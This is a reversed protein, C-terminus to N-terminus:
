MCIKDFIDPYVYSILLINRSYSCLPYENTVYLVYFM